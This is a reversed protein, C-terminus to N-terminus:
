ATFVLRRIVHVFETNLESYIISNSSDVLEAVAGLQM